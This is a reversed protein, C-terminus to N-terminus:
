FSRAKSRILNKDLCISFRVQNIVQTVVVIVVSAINAPTGLPVSIRNEIHGAYVLAILSVHVSVLLLHLGLGLWYSRRLSALSADVAGQQQGKESWNKSKCSSSDVSNNNLLALDAENPDAM